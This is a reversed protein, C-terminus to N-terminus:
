EYASANRLSGGGLTCYVQRQPSCSHGLMFAKYGQPIAVHNSISKVSVTEGRKETKKFHIFVYALNRETLMTKFDNGICEEYNVSEECQLSGDGNAMTYKVCLRISKSFAIAIVSRLFCIECLRLATQHATLTCATNTM